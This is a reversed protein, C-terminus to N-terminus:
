LCCNQNLKDWNGLFEDNDISSLDVIGRTLYQKCKNYTEEGTAIYFDPATMLDGNLNVFIYYHNINIRDKMLPWGTNKKKYIAKVQIIFQKDNKEALIDISKANGMTIGVSFGRRLLEAAVFYEGSLGTSNREIEAM